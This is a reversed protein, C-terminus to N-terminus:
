KRMNYYCLVGCGRLDREDGAGMRIAAPERERWWYDAQVSLFIQPLSLATGYINVEMQADTKYLEIVLLM